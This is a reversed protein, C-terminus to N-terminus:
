RCKTGTLYPGVEEHDHANDCRLAVVRMIVLL